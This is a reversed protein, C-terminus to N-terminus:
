SAGATQRQQIKHRTKVWKDQQRFKVLGVIQALSVNILNIGYGFLIIPFDRPRVRLNNDLKEAFWYLLVFSYGLMIAGSLITIMQSIINTHNIGANMSTQAAAMATSLARGYIVPNLLGLANALIMWIFFVPAAMSYMYTFLSMFEGVSVKKKFVMKLLRPTNRFAVFWHGQGWRIRQRLSALINTPKEDYIRVNNNWLIRGGNLTVDVQMEFDETLSMTTWGGRQELYATQIAFGTGGVAVNLGLRYKSLNSFRNTITYTVHYFQAVIGEKNKSGLYCQIIEPKNESVYQSNVERLITADMLNDADFLMLLDYKEAYDSVYQLAKRLALPKGTPADPSSKHNEIVNAGLSAAIEATNDECNDAIIYFDYMEKPYDLNQLNRVMDGIVAEENHAPVLILFRTQPPQPAYSRGEKKFGYVSLYIYYTLLLTMFVNGIVIGVNLFGALFDM